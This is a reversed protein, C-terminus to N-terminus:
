TVEVIRRTNAQLSTQRNTKIFPHFSLPVPAYIRPIIHCILYSTYSIIHNIKMWESVRTAYSMDTETSLECTEFCEHSIYM